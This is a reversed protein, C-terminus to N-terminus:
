ETGHTLGGGTNQGITESIDFNWQEPVKGSSYIAGFASVYDPYGPDNPCYREIDAMQVLGRAYDLLKMYAPLESPQLLSM